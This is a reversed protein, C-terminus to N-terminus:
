GLREVCRLAEAQYAKGRENVFDLVNLSTPVYGFGIRAEPHWQFISGGLGMWGYFGERGTNLGRDIARSGSAQPTFHAVGGQTFSTGTFGMDRSVPEAHLAQWATEGFLQLGQWSGGNALVAALKALGRATSNANASPIEGQAIEPDSFASIRSMGEIPKPMGKTSRRRISPVLRAVKAAAQFINQEMRRGAFRPKMWEKLLLGSKIPRVPAARDLEQATLGIYADLQLPRSIEERVFEGLTRGGPDARRFVENAIWGRTLAHYERRSGNERFRQEHNEIIRGIRNEKISDTRLDMVDLSTDFAALGAEHRMLDAVTTEHKGNAGFEPWYENIPADFRLQGRDVLMAMSLAELSKGSSFINVLTDPTFMPDDTSAWLDVVKKGEHYICLQTHEEVLSRMNREYLARVSEFGPSVEGNISVAQNTM